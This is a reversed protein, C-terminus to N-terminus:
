KNREKYTNLSKLFKIKRDVLKKIDELTEIALDLNKIGLRFMYINIVDEIHELTKQKETKTQTEM